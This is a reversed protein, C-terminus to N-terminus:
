RNLEVEVFWPRKGRGFTGEHFHAYIRFFFINSRSMQSHFTWKRGSALALSPPSCHGMVWAYLGFRIQMGKLEATMCGLRPIGQPSRLANVRPM